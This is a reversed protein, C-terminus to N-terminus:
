FFCGSQFITGSIMIGSTPSRLFELENLVNNDGDGIFFDALGADVELVFDTGHDFNRSSSQRSVFNCLFSFEEAETGVVKGLHGEAEATVVGTLEKIGIVIGLDVFVIGKCLEVLVTDALEHIHSTLEAAAYSRIHVDTNATFMATVRGRNFEAMFEAHAINGARRETHRDCSKSSCLSCNLCFLRKDINCLALYVTVFPQMLQMICGNKVGILPTTQIM